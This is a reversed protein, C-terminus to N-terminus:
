YHEFIRRILTILDEPKFPKTWYFDAGLSWGKPAQVDVATLMIVPIHSTAPTEKLKSLVEFGDMHPMMVDLVILDPRAAAVRELAEVGNYAVIVEHGEMELALRVLHVMDPEDDVVLIKKRM